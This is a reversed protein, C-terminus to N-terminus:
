QIKVRFKVQMSPHNVGDSGRFEGSPTIRIFNIPPVTIDEGTAADVQPTIFTAGGDNSFDINDTTDNLANFTVTVGSSNAGDVFSVPNLPNGFFFKTAAPLPDTIIISNNDVYGFGSNQVQITYEVIAAPIRKPQATNNVPDSIVQSTKSISINATGVVLQAQATHSIANEQGEKATVSVNWFGEPTAPLTYSYEYVRTAGTPTAVSTMAANSVQAAANADTISINASTIDANGFPDSVTARVYVTSGPTYSSFKATSPWPAAYFAISDVNIVTAAQLLLLSRNAGQLTRIQINGNSAPVNNVVVRIFDGTAFNVASPINIPVTLNKWGNGALTATNSGILVGTNGNYLDARITRNGGGSRRRIRLQVDATSGGQITFPAQFVLGQNLTLTDINGTQTNAAPIARTLNPTANVTDFYLQKAGSTPPNQTVSVSATKVSQMTAGGISATVTATNVTTAGDPLAASGAVIPGVIVTQSAGPAYTQELGSINHGQDDSTNGPGITFPVANPNSVTYCFYVNTGPTVSIATLQDNCTANTSAYKTFTLTQIDIAYDEVEGDFMTSGPTLTSLNLDTSFRLRLYTKGAVLGSLGNWSLTVAGNNTGTSVFATAGEAAEFQGNGNFDIWGVLRATNGTTNTVSVNISYSTSSTTLVPLSAVGDEDDSGTLDDGDANTSPQGTVESDPPAAGMYIASDIGHSAGGNSTLTPYNSPADGFDFGSFTGSSFLPHIFAASDYVRDASDAVAIKVHYSQGPVVTIPQYLTNTYGDLELNANTTAVTNNGGTTNGNSNDTYFPANTLSGCNALNGFIGVNGTNVWNISSLDGGATKAYNEANLAGSYPGNIGPGSVFIGVVDNFNSCVYEPFEDSGFQFPIALVNSQPVVDFEIAAYEGNVTGAELAVMDPDSATTNCLINTQNAANNSSNLPNAANTFDSNAVIIGTPEGLVPGPGTPTTGQTFIGVGAGFTCGPVNTITLNSISVGTGQLISTMEATNTGGSAVSTISIALSPPMHGLLWLLLALGAIRKQLVTKM